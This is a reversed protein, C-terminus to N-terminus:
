PKKLWRYIRKPRILQGSQEMRSVLLGEIEEMERLIQCAQVYKNDWSVKTVIEMKTLIKMVDYGSWEKMKKIVPLVQKRLMDLKPRLKKKVM